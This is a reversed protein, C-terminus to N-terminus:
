VVNKIEGILDMVRKRQVVCHKEADDSGGEEEESGQNVRSRLMKCM